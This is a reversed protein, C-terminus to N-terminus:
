GGRRGTTPPPLISVIDAKDVSSKDEVQPFWIVIVWDDTQVESVDNFATKVDEFERIKKSFLNALDENGSLRLGTAIRMKKTKEGSSHSKLARLFLKKFSVTSEMHLDKNSSFLKTTTPFTSAVAETVDDIPLEIRFEKWRKLASPDFWRQPIVKEDFPFIGTKLFDKQTNPPQNKDV